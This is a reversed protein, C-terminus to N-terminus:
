GVYGGRCTENGNLSALGRRVMQWVLTRARAYTGKIASLGQGNLLAHLDEVSTNAGVILRSLAFPNSTTSSMGFKVACASTYGAAQVLRRVPATYYGFPYAFSAVPKALREELLKKSTVIENRAISLPVTDLQYHYHSHGGCEIGADSIQRLQQWNLLQRHAEGERYLWSSTGNVFATPVYLTAVFGYRALISLADTYFDAFADDFTLVVPRKPLASRTANDGSLVKVFESVTLPTYGQQHLHAMHEVFLDPHVAFEKFRPTAQASISHYMLIPVKSDESESMQVHEKVITKLVRWGDRVIDLNSKGFIHSWEM